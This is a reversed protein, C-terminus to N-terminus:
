RVLPYFQKLMSNRQNSRKIPYNNYNGAENSSSGDKFTGVAGIMGVTSYSSLLSKFSTEYILGKLSSKGIGNSSMAGMYEINNRWNTAIASSFVNAEVENYVSAGGQGNEYQFAHFLEHATSEVNTYESITNDMFLGAKIVGGGEANELFQFTGNSKGSKDLPVENIFNFKNSSSVLSTLLKSGGNDNVANLYEITKSVFTNKGSYSMGVSYLMSQQKGNNDEYYIWVEKGDPDIYRIPNNLCYAYPSIWPYKECLPDIGLATIAVAIENESDDKAYGVVQKTKTNYLVSGIEVVEKNDHFEEFEGKTSSYAKINKFGYKAFPNKATQANASIVCLVMLGVPLINKM